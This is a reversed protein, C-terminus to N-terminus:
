IGEEGTAGREGAGRIEFVPHDPAIDRLEAETAEPGAAFLGKTEREWRALYARLLPPKEDDSVETATFREVQRGTVLRGGASGAARLNRVWQTEGRPSVLYRRDEVVLENVPVGRWEGSKRGRVELVRKGGLDLGLRRVLFGVMPNLGRVVFTSPKRYATM